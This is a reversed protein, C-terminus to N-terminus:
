LAAAGRITSEDDPLYCSHSNWSPPVGGMRNSCMMLILSSRNHMNKLEGDKGPIIDSFSAAIEDKIDEFRSPFGRTLPGRVVDVLYHDHLDPYRMTHEMQLLELSADAFSLDDESAKRIDDLMAPGNCVILWRNNM